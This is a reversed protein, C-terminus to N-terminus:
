NKSQKFLINKLEGWQEQFIGPDMQKLDPSIVPEFEMQDLIHKQLDVGPAIETLTLKGNLLEFVARETVYIVPQNTKTAYAGSFTIQQVQKVFKKSKGEKIINLKGDEVRVDLGGATFTGAFVLKKASQSINIFGGCGAVRTGFKSVNM